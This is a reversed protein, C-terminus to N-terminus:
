ARAHARVESALVTILAADIDAEGPDYAWILWDGDRYIGPDIENGTTVEEARGESTEGEKLPEDLRHLAATLERRLRARIRERRDVRASNLRDLLEAAVRLVGDPTAEYGEGAGRVPEWLADLWQGCGHQQSFPELSGRNLQVLLSVDRPVQQGCSPCANYPRDTWVVIRPPWEEPSNAQDHVVTAYTGVPLDLRSLVDELKGDTSM